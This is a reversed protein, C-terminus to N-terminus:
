STLPIKQTSQSRKNKAARRVNPHVISPPNFRYLQRRLLDLYIGRQDIDLHGFLLIGGQQCMLHPSAFFCDILSAKLVM